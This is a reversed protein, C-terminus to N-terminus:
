KRIKKMEAAVERDLPNSSADLHDIVRDFNEKDRNQSLKSAAQVETITMELGVLGKLQSDLYNKSMGEVSVRNPRGEEFKDVLSKLHDILDHGTIIKLTGQIHVAQYNWTPVNEHNYWSSSIYAHPGQFIALAEGEAINRWQPNAKAIHGTLITDGQKNKSLILPIHTAWPKGDTQTVLTAFSYNKILDIIAPENEWKNLPHIYM